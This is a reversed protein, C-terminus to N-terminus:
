RVGGIKEKLKRCEGSAVCSSPSCLPDAGDYEDGFCKTGALSLLYKLNAWFVAQEDSVDAPIKFGIDRMFHRTEILM